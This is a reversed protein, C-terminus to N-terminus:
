LAAPGTLRSLPVSRCARSCESSLATVCEPRLRSSTKLHPVQSPSHVSTRAADTEPPDLLTIDIARGARFEFGDPRDFHIAMTGEAVQERGNLKAAYGTSFEAPM